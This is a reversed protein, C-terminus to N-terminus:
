RREWDIGSMAALSKQLAQTGWQGGGQRQLELYLRQALELGPLLLNMRKAEQVAIGLDKVFHDVFFGPAFNNAVIRPALNALSWSGAAGGGVSELVRNLDLGARYAYLLAECVGIMGSAILIQNVMKTHQGAGPPGQHIVTKGMVRLCPEVCAVASPEGGVMISLTANRAGIDGGSVPADLSHVGIPAAKDAIHRALAPPSTTMDVVIQGARCGVLVGNEGLFVTEVDTPMGVIAFVVDSSEAVRKPTDAWVAGAAVLANAKSHTRNHVVVSYGAQLLHRCMSQGM